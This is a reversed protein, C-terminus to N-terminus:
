FHPRIQNPIVYFDNEKIEKNRGLKKPKNDALYIAYYRKDDEGMYVPRCKQNRLSIEYGFLSSEKDKSINGFFKPM